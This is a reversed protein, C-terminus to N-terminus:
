NKELEEFHQKWGRFLLRFENLGTDRGKAIFQQIVKGSKDTDNPDHWLFEVVDADQEISGSEKLDSLVPRTPRTNVGRKESDRSMQSLLMFCCNMEMAIHKAETTVTGIAQARTEGKRQPINMIQLYDVAIMAIKGYKRKFKRADARVEDISVKSRDEIFIPLEELLDMAVEIQSIDKDSLNKRKIRGYPIGTLNSIMRDLLQERSMEQSYVLVVGKNQKAVGIVRQLLLATKGVSPRGASVFLWGRWLGHAWEDFKRFGTPIFEAQEKLYEFYSDRTEQISLMQDNDEPRMDAVLKEITSYFEEDTEYDGRNIDMLIYGIDRVRRELAKSRIIRAYHEVNATTPCADVLNMFYSVGGVSEIRNHKAYLDTVTIVDIPKNKKDLWKMVKFLEQHVPNKFDRPELFSIDDLVNQDLFVAGLVSQEAQEGVVDVEMEKLDGSSLM